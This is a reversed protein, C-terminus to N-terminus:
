KKYAWKLARVKNACRNQLGLLPVEQTLQADAQETGKENWCGLCWDAWPALEWRQLRQPSPEYMQIFDVHHQVTHIKAMCYGQHSSCFNAQSLRLWNFNNGCFRPRAHKHTLTINNGFWNLYILMSELDSWYICWSIASTGRQHEHPSGPTPHSPLKLACVVVLVRLDPSALLGLESSGWVLAIQKWLSFGLRAASGEWPTTLGACCCNLQVAHLVSLEMM